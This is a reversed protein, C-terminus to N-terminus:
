TQIIGNLNTVDLGLKKTIITALSHSLLKRAIRAQLHFCTKVRIKNIKFRETLQGIVTEVLRRTSLIWRVFEPNRNDNMNKRMPTQLEINQDALQTQLSASIFGKDALMIGTIGDSMELMADRESGNAPTLMFGSLAGDSNIRVHGMFGYYHEDKSACYGYAAEGKFCKDRASRAYHMIPMPVGDQMHLINNRPVAFCQQLIEQMIPLLNAIQRAFVSREGLKPFWASYHKKFYSWIKTDEQMGSFEGIVAMTLAEADSLSPPFGAKRITRGGFSETIKEEIMLYVFIIFEDQTM